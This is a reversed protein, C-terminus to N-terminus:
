WGYRGHKSKALEMNGYKEMMEMGIQAGTPTSESMRKAVSDPLDKLPLANYGINGSVKIGASVGAKGHFGKETLEYVAQASAGADAGVSVGAYAQIIKGNEIFPRTFAEGKAAAEAISASAKVGGGVDVSHSNVDASFGAEASGSVNIGLVSKIGGSIIGGNETIHYTRKEYNMYDCSVEVPKYTGHLGVNLTPAETLKAKNLTKNSTFSTELEGSGKFPNLELRGSCGNSAKEIEIKSGDQAVYILTSGNTFTYVTGNPSEHQSLFSYESQALTNLVSAYRGSTMKGQDMMFLLSKESLGGVYTKEYPIHRRKKGDEFSLLDNKLNELDVRWRNAKEISEISKQDKGSLWNELTKIRDKLEKKQEEKIENKLGRYINNYAEVYVQQKKSGTGIQLKTLSIGYEKEFIEDTKRQLLLERAGLALGGAALLGLIEIAAANLTAKDPEKIEPLYDFQRAMADFDIRVPDTKSGKPLVSAIQEGGTIHIASDTEPSDVGKQPKQNGSVVPANNGSSSDTNSVTDSSYHHIMSEVRELGTAARSSLNQCTTRYSTARDEFASIATRAEDVLAECKQCRECAKQYAGEESACSVKEDHSQRIECRSLAAAKQERISELASLKTEFESLLSLAQQHFSVVTEESSNSYASIAARLENIKGLDVVSRAM